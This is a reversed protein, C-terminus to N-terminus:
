QQQRARRRAKLVGILALVALWGASTRSPGSARCTCGPSEADLAKKTGADDSDQAAGARVSLTIDPAPCRVQKDPPVTLTFTESASGAAGAAMRLDWQFYATGGPAVDDILTAAINWAPWTKSDYLPSQTGQAASAPTLWMEGRKWTSTGRNVFAAWAPGSEGPLLNMPYSKSGLEAAYASAPKGMQTPHGDDVVGSCDNDVDDCVEATPEYDRVCKTCGQVCRQRGSACPGLEGTDCASKGGNPDPGGCASWGEWQCSSSCSRSQTGCDCCNQNETAGPSCPGEGACSSWGGWHGDSSCTRSQSGCNGCGRNEQQGSGCETCEQIGPRRLADFSAEMNGWYSDSNRRHMSYHAPNGCSSEEYAHFAQHSSDAWAAFLIAHEGCNVVADGPELEDWSIHQAYNCLGGTNMAYSLWWTASVFGSCDPRYCQGGRLPDYYCASCGTTCYSGYPGQCYPVGANVWSKADDLVDCRTLAFATSSGSSAALVFTAALVLRKSPITANM